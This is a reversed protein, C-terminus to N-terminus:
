FVWSMHTEVTEVLKAELAVKRAFMGRSGALAPGVGAPDLWRSLRALIRPHSRCAGGDPGHGHQRATRAPMRRAIRRTILNPTTRQRTTPQPDEAFFCAASGCCASRAAAAARAFSSSAMFGAEGYSTRSRLTYRGVSRQPWPGYRSSLSESRAFYPSRITM